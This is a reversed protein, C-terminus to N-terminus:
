RGRAFLAALEIHDSWLFQDVPMLRRLTMGGAILVKADRAFTEANCSVYVVRKLKTGALTQAQELAGARPPDLVVGDFKDLEAVTLPRKFLNRREATVPKLGPSKAGAELAALHGAELEVAHVRANEALPLTFTGCGSFLDAARKARGMGDCVFKQLAAEGERTPQLFCEAPLTVAGKGFHVVPKALEVLIEGHRSIRALRLKQAWRAFAALMKPDTKRAWRLFVDAGTETETIKVDADDGEGLVEAAMARLGPVLAALSPTLLRCEAMDVIDHSRAAHFGFSVKGGRKAAKFSARRRTAPPVEVTEECDATLSARSLLEALRARKRDRYADASLDQFACGGCLGFHRCLSM